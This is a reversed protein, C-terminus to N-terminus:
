FLIKIQLSVALYYNKAKYEYEQPTTGDINLSTRYEPVFHSSFSLLSNKTARWDLNVDFFYYPKFKYFRSAIDYLTFHHLSSSSHYGIKFGANFNDTIGYTFAFQGRYYNQPNINTVFRSTNGTLFASYETSIVFYDLPYLFTNYPDILNLPGNASNKNLHTVDKEYQIEILFQKKLLLDKTLKSFEDQEIKKNNDYLYTLTLTPQTNYYTL